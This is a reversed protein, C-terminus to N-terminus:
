AARGRSAGGTGSGPLRASGLPPDPPFSRACDPQAASLELARAPGAPGLLRASRARTCGPPASRSRAPRLAPAAAMFRSRSPRKRDGPAAPGRLPEPPLQPPPRVRPRGERPLGLTSSAGRTAERSPQPGARAQPSAPSSPASSAPPNLWGGPVVARAERGPARPGSSPLRLRGPARAPHHKALGSGAQGRLECNVSSSQPGIPRASGPGRQPRCGSTM